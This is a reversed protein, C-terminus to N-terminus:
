KNNGKKNTETEGKRPEDARRSKATSLIDAGNRVRVFLLSKKRSSLTFVLRNGDTLAGKRTSQPM